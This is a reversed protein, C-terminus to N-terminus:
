FPPFDFSFANFADNQSYSNQRTAKSPPVWFISNPFDWVDHRARRFGFDRIELNKVRQLRRLTQLPLLSRPYLLTPRPFAFFRVSRSVESAPLGSSLGLGKLAQYASSTLPKSPPLGFISNQIRLDVGRERSAWFKLRFKSSTESLAEPIEAVNSKLNLLRHLRRPRPIPSPLSFSSFRRQRRRGTFHQSRHRLHPPPPPPSTTSTFFTAVVLLFDPLM